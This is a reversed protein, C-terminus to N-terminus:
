RLFCFHKKKCFLFTIWSLAWSSFYIDTQLLNKWIQNCENVCSAESPNWYKEANLSTSIFNEWNYTSLKGLNSSTALKGLEINLLDIPLMPFRAHYKFIGLLTQTIRYQLISFRGFTDRMLISASFAGRKTGSM